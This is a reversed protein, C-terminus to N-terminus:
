VFDLDVVLRSVDEAFDFFVGAFGEGGYESLGHRGGDGDIREAVRRVLGVAARAPDDTRRDDVVHVRGLRSVDDGVRDYLRGAAWLLSLRMWGEPTDARADAM